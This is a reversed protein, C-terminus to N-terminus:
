SAPLTELYAHLKSPLLRRLEALDHATRQAIWQAHAQEALPRQGLKDAAVARALANWTLTADLANVEDTLTLAGQWDGRRLYILGVNELSGAKDTDGETFAAAQRWDSEAAQDNGLAFHSFARKHFSWADDPIMALAQDYAAIALAHDSYEAADEGLQRWGLEAEPSQKLALLDAEAPATAGARLHLIARLALCEVNEPDTQLAHDLAALATKDNKEATAALLADAYLLRPYDGHEPRLMDLLIRAEDHRGSRAMFEAYDIGFDPDSPDLQYAHKYHQAALALDGQAEAIDALTSWPRPWQPLRQTLRTLNATAQEVDGRVYLQISQFYERYPNGLRVLLFVTVTISLLAFAGARQVHTRRQPNRFGLM